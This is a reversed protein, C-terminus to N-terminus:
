VGSVPAEASATARHASRSIDCDSAGTLSGAAPHGHGAADAASSSTRGHVISGDFDDPLDEIAEVDLERGPAEGVGARTESFKNLWGGGSCDFFFETVGSLDVRDGAGALGHRQVDLPIERATQVQQAPKPQVGTQANSIAGQIADSAGQAGRQAMQSQLRQLRANNM